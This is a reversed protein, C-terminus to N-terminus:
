SYIAHVQSMLLKDKLKKMNIYIIAFNEIRLSPDEDTSIFRRPTEILNFHDMYESDLTVLYM